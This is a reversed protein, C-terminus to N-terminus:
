NAKDDLFEELYDLVDDVYDPHMNTLWEFAVDEGRRNAKELYERTIDMIFQEDNM